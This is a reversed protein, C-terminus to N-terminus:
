QAEPRRDTGRAAAPPSSRATFGTTFRSLASLPLVTKLCCSYERRLLEKRKCVPSWSGERSFRGCREGRGCRPQQCDRQLEGPTTRRWRAAFLPSRISLLGRRLAVQYGSRTPAPAAIANVATPAAAIHVPQSGDLGRCHFSMLPRNFRPASTAAIRPSRGITTLWHGEAPIAPTDPSLRPLRLRRRCRGRRRRRATRGAPRCRRSSPRRATPNSSGSAARRSRRGSPARRRCPRGRRRARCPRRHRERSSRLPSDDGFAAFAGAAVRELPREPDRPPPPPPEAGALSFVVVTPSRAVPGGAARAREIEAESRAIRDAAATELM